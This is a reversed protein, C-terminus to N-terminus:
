QQTHIRNVYAVLQLQESYTRSLLPRLQNGISRLSPPQLQLLKKHMKRAEHICSYEANAYPGCLTTISVM